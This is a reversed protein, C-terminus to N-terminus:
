AKYIRCLSVKTEQMQTISDVGTSVIINVSDGVVLEAGLGHGDKPYRNSYDQGQFVGNWHFPVFAVTYPPVDISARETVKAKVKIRGRATEVWVWDGNKIGNLIAFKPSIEVYCEPQIEALIPSNRTQAGGGHHEVQRGSTLVIPYKRYREEAVARKQETELPYKVMRYKHEIDPFTPYKEVLDPRPSEIPERHVPIKDFHEYVYIRAKGRGTPPNGEELAQKVVKGSMDFVYAYTWHRSGWPKDWKERVIPEGAKPDGEPYKWKARFDHGGEKPHYEDCYLVPTGPHEETWCPWPLGWYEGDCPGGIAKGTHPDFTHANEKQRKLREPTQGQLGIPRCAINIERTVDEITKYDFFPYMFAKGMKEDIKKALLKFIEFDTKSEWQPEIIPDRWQWERGTTTVSGSGEQRTAAPLLYIGDEKEPLASAATPYPDVIVLMDLKEFAEKQKAIEKISSMAEGWFFAARINCNQDIEEIPKRLVGQYWNSVTFGPMTMLSKGKLPGDKIVDFRSKLEDFTISGSTLGRKGSETFVKAYWEWSKESKVSYYGPLFHSLVCLDTVGQVNDHGRIPICGGGWKGQSGLVLSLAALARIIYTGTSHQTAGMSWIVAVPRNEAMIRAAERIKEAPVWTIDEVVEPPYDQVVEKLKEWGYTRDKLYEEDAWGNKFIEHIIGYLLAIDSGPRFQMFLDAFSATRTFRPDAVIIKAGNKDRANFVRRMFVPHAEAANSGFFFACKTHEISITTGTMAGHGYTALLGAVTTSHCIRAQHDINNTGWLMAFKRFMYAEENSGHVLGCFFFADPGYKNRIEVMKSAIEDLAQEWTIRKWKGNEKKMPWKLRRPNNTVTVLSAGKCCMGGQNIPHDKWPEIHTFVGDKVVGTYGCGISCFSCISKVRKVKVGEGEAAEVTSFLEEPSFKRDGFYKSLAVTAGSVLTAKLFNRRSLKIEAM